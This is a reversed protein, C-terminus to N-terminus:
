GGTGRKAYWARLVDIAVPIATRSGEDGEELLVTVVIEPKDFPAFSTFWAHNPKDKRWQATGTKGAAEFPLSKLATGSGYVVTDRMGLRVTSIVVPDAITEQPLAFDEPTKVMHPTLEHGGNAIEGTFLAVQLPTVLLDGQGISLNYTDGVYWREGKTREKWETSPVFGSNEGPLDLGTKDGLGFRRMWSTLRDVGLGTFSEYGGGVTYFYTNVSWAIAKRVNTVGHGGAKWDPFFISGMRLGGSSFVTTQPTVVGEALAATAVVPKVTSGSPYTGAFARPLLPKEPDALLKAYYTSSVTGSFHNDDYAPWSVLALISGDRPDLAVVSGRQLEFKDLNERLSKEAARQLDLDLSLTVETGDVPSRDGVMTTVAGLADVEYTKEGVQGRLPMEQSYEIGAKGISDTQRYGQEKRADLEPRSIPGVYGLVHSLSPLEASFPYRRKSSNIVQFASSDDLFIKLGVAKEYSLDHVLTLTEGPDTSSAIKNRIDNLPLAIERSVRGLLEDREEPNLPLYWPTVQLDFSPTNDALITGRSDRIIGRMAPQREHRIRNRDALEVYGSPSLIQMWFARGLLLLVMAATVAIAYWFRRTAIAPGLFMKDDKLHTVEDEFLIEHQFLGNKNPDIKLGVGDHDNIFLRGRRNEDM